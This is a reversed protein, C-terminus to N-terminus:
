ANLRGVLPGDAEALRMVKLLVLDAFRRELPSVIQVEDFHRALKRPPRRIQPGGCVLPGPSIAHRHDLFGISIRRNETTVRQDQDAAREHVLQAFPLDTFCWRRGEFVLSGSM